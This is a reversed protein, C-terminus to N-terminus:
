EPRLGAHHVVKAWKEADTAILRGFEGPTMPSPTVGFEVLRAKTDPAVIVANIQANLADVIPAPTGAPAGIGMWTSAEYGPVAEAIAPVAPFLDLRTASTVGLAHLKGARIYEILQPISSFVVQVRGGFLDPMYNSRYPVHVLDIDTMMMFLEGMVHASTGVGPSAINVKGPNARAYAIFEALSSAPFSADVVMAFPLNGIRAVPVIDRIFDFALHPYLSANIANTTVSLLLTYGDPQARVVYETGINTGGGPRSEIVFQQGWRESLPQAIVRAVIDPTSGPPFTIVIRVPRAPYSQAWAPRPLVSLVGAGAAVRLFERRALIRTKTM